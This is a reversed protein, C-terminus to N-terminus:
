FGVQLSVDVAKHDDLVKRCRRGGLRGRSPKWVENLVKEPPGSERWFRQTVDREKEADNAPFPTLVGIRRMRESQQAQADLPWAAVAGGLLTILERRKMRDGRRCPRHADA